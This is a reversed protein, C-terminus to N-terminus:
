LAFRVWLHRDEDAGIPHGASLEALTAGEVVAVVVEVTLAKGAMPHNTDVTLTDADVATVFGLRRDGAASTLEVPEHPQVNPHAARPLRHVATPDHPGFLAGPGFELRRFTGADLGTLPAELAPPLAGTGWIVRLPNGLPRADLITGAEDLLTYALGVVRGPGIPFRSPKM